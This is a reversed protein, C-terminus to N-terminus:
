REIYVCRDIDIYIYIYIDHVATLCPLAPAARNLRRLLRKTQTESKLSAGYDNAVGEYTLSTNTWTRDRQGRPQRCARQHLGCGLLEDYHIM